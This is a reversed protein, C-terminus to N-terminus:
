LEEKDVTLRLDVASVGDASAVLPNIDLELISPFDSALASVREVTEVVAETDVPQSGRAGHLLPSADIGDVMERAETDTVPAIGFSTDEFVEVFVGGLGFVVLSGFQPDRSFGVITEVGDDVEVTEQVQVGLVDADPQYSRARSVLDEYVDRVDDQTVGVRVGGIDSKHLIDPSVIKMVVDGDIGEAVQVAENPSGVVDSEPTPIGYAELLPTAEVGLRGDDRATELIRRAKQRNVDFDRVEGTRRRKARRYDAVAELSRVARAPDFYTPIDSESLVDRAERTAEGGMLSAVLPIEVDTGVLTEALADFDFTTTPCAIVLSASVGPDDAVAEVADAFREPPADGLIDVPNYVSAADPLAGDLAEYTGDTLDALSLSTDGVADTAMVGPGGANTVVAVGDGEPLSLADLARAFDFLEEVDDARIVGAKRLATEYARDSGALTGTHSSVARAGEDTRGSKVLVVPTERTVRRLVRVFRGGDEVGELYGVIVATGDDEGWAEAFETEDLVSKNGLSVIHRFGMRADNAWDVAATIFAGSQSMFSVNGERPSASGFTANLSSPTSTVGLSNPGVLRVSHREAAEALATEREAGGGGSESFGATLVVVNKVGREGLSDVVDVASEAPVAVVALDVSGPVSPIDDYCPFGLVDDHKPNVGVVDGDFSRLNEMVGRGVSGERPTAGVVAVREPEFLRLLDKRSM